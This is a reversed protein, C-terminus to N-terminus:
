KKRKGSGTIFTVWKGDATLVSSTSTFTDDSTFEYADRYKATGEGSMSPGEAALTIKMGTSDVTGKYHWLHNMMSDVWTGIYKKTKPDYGITQIANVTVGGAKTETKNVIWLNGLMTSKMTSTTKMPPQGEGAGAESVVEWEGVFKRLWKHQESDGDQGPVQASASVALGAFLAFAFPVALLKM